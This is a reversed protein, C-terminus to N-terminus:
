EKGGEYIKLGTIHYIVPLCLASLGPRLHLNPPAILPKIQAEIECSELNFRKQAEEKALKLLLHYDDHHIRLNCPIIICGSHDDKAKAWNVKQVNKKAESNKSERETKKWWFCLRAHGGINPVLLVIIVLLIWAELAEM